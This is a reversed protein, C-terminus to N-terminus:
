FLDFTLAPDFLNDRHCAVVIWFIYLNKAEDTEIKGFVWKKLIM